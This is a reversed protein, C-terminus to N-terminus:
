INCIRFNMLIFQICLLNVKDEVKKKRIAEFFDLMNEDYEKSDDCM